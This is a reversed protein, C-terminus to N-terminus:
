QAEVEMVQFGWGNISRDASFDLNVSDGEVYDSVYNEGKGTIKEVVNGASDSVKLFDYGKELDFKVVRVRIYKAGPVKVSKRSSTNEKYPHESQYMEDLRVVQWKRADPGSREPRTDTLLNYADVRSGTLTKGRLATVPVGTM